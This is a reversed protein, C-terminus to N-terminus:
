CGQRALLRRDLPDKEIAIASQVDLSRLAAVDLARALQLQQRTRCLCDPEEVTGVQPGTNDGILTTNREPAHARGVHIGDVPAKRMQQGLLVSEQVGDVRTGM